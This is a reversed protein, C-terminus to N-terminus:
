SLGRLWTLRWTRLMWVWHFLCLEPHEQPRQPEMVLGPRTLPIPTQSPYPKLHGSSSTTLIYRTILPLSQLTLAPSSLCTFQQPAADSLHLTLPERYVFTELLTLPM